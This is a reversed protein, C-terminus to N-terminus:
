VLNIPKHSTLASGHPFAPSTINIVARECACVELSGQDPTEPLTPAVDAKIAVLVHTGPSFSHFTFSHKSLTLVITVVADDVRIIFCLM